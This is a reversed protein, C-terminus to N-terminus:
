FDVKEVDPFPGEKPRQFARASDCSERWTSGPEAHALMEPMPDALTVASARGDPRHISLKIQTKRM